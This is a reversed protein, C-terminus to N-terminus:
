QSFPPPPVPGGEGAALIAAQLAEFDDDTIQWHSGNWFNKRYKHTFDPLVDGIAPADRLDSVWAFTEVEMLHPWRDTVSGKPGTSPNIQIAGQRRQAAFVKQKGVAYAILGEYNSINEPKRHKPFRMLERLSAEEETWLDPVQGNPVGTVGVLKFWKKWPPTTMDSM